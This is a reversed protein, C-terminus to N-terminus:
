TLQFPPRSSFAGTGMWLLSPTGEFAEFLKWTKRVFPKM